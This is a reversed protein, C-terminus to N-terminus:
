RPQPLSHHGHASLKLAFETQAREFDDMRGIDLWYEHIPFISVRKGLSIRNRILDPMDVPQGRQVSEVAQPSLVYIGANVFFSHVPKEVIDAVEDDRLQVVGFPVQYDYERVCVTMDGGQAEHHALLNGFDLHTLLDGNMMVIPRNGIDPLLGLAGGTGLPEDEEVYRIAVGFASGDGFYDKIQEALYHVSVYFKRFGAAVFREIISELIPKGGLRLMPKPCDDTLPRLRKGFGGAMLFVWNDRVPVALLDRYSEMGLLRGADDVVPVQLLDNDRFLALAKERETGRRLTKPHPNMIRSVPEDLGIQRILGRRVDGDTVTGLLRREGDVVLTIRASGADIVRIAEAISTAPSILLNEWREM